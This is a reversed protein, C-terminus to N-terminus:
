NKIRGLEDTITFEISGAAGVAIDYKEFVVIIQNNENIYFDTNESIQDIISLDDWLVNKKEDEWSSITKEISDTIIQRYEDGFCDKLTLIRGSEMDINYYYNYNYASFNTEYQSIVFSVYENSIKKIEYNVTIGVPIFDEPAGGTEIFANYYEKARTENEALRENIMKQIELNIRKELDPKGTNDIKPIKADIYKIDDEFHYEQFTLIRCIDGLIPVKYVASIVVPSVNLFAIFGPRCISQNESRISNKCLRLLQMM